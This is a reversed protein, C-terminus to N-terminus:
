SVPTASADSRSGSSPRNRTFRCRSRPRAAAAMRTNGVRTGRSASSARGGSTSASDDSLRPSTSADAAGGARALGGRHRREDVLDVPAVGLVDDGDFIRDFVLMLVIARMTSCTSIPGSAGSKGVASRLATRCAGSTSTIPSIRSWSDIRMASDAASVPCRTKLLRCVVSMAEVMARMQSENGLSRCFVM